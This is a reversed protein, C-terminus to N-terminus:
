NKKPPRWIGLRCVTSPIPGQVEIYLGMKALWEILSTMWNPGTLRTGITQRTNGGSGADRIARAVLGQFAKGTDDNKDINRLLMRLKSKHTFDILSQLGLGGDAALMWLPIAPYSKMNRYIKKVINTYAKDLEAFRELGWTCFQMRYVINARLCYELALLKDGVRGKHRLIRAGLCELTEKLVEFQKNSNTDMNWIVGLHTM